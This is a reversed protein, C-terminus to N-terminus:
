FQSLHVDSKDKVLKKISSIKLSKFLYFCIMIQDLIEKFSNQDFNQNINKVELHCSQNFMYNFYKLIEFGLACRRFQNQYYDNFVRILEDADCEM